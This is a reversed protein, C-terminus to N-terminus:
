GFLLWAGLTFICPDVLAHSLYGPRISRYRVYMMSWIVGGLFVGLSCLVLATTGLYVHMAVIHHLTFFLASCAAAPVPPM